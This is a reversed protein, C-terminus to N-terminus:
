EVLVAANFLDDIETNSLGLTAGLSGIIPSDRYWVTAYEFYIRTPDSVPLQSVVNEVVALLNSQGDPTSTNLLALRGQVASCQTAQPTPPPSYAAISNGADIWARVVRPIEGDNAAIRDVPIIWEQGNIVALVMTNEENSYTASTVTM